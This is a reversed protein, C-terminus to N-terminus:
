CCSGLGALCDNVPADVSEGGNQNAIMEACWRHGRALTQGLCQHIGYGFALHGRANSDLDPLRLRERSTALVVTAPCAALVRAVLETSPLPQRL